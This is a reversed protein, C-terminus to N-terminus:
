AENILNILLFHLSTFKEENSYSKCGLYCLNVRGWFAIYVKNVNAMFFILKL